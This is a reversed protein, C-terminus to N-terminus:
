CNWKRCERYFTKEKAKNKKGQLRCGINLQQKSGIDMRLHNGKMPQPNWFVAVTFEAFIDDFLLLFQRRKETATQKWRSQGLDSIHM